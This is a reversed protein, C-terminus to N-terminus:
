VTRNDYESSGWKIPKGVQDIMYKICSEADSFGRNNDTLYKCKPEDNEHATMYIEEGELYIEGEEELCEIFKFLPSGEVALKLVENQVSNIAFCKQVNEMSSTYCQIRWKKFYYDYSIEIVETWYKDGDDKIFGVVKDGSKEIKTEIM